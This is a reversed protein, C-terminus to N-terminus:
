LKDTRVVRRTHFQLSLGWNGSLLPLANTRGLWHWGPLCLHKLCPEARATRGAHPCYKGTVMLSELAHLSSIDPGTLQTKLGHPTSLYGVENEFFLQDMWLALDEWGWLSPCLPGTGHRSQLLATVAKNLSTMEKIMREASALFM